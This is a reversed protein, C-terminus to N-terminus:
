ETHHRKHHRKQAPKIMHHTEHKAVHHKLAPKAVHHHRHHVPELQTSEVKAKAEDKIPEHHLALEANRAQQSDFKTPKLKPTVVVPGAEKKQHLTEHQHIKHHPVAEDKKFSTENAHRKKHMVKVPEVKLQAKVAHRHGHNRTEGKESTEVGKKELVHHKKHKSSEKHPAAIKEPSSEVKEAPHNLLYRERVSMAHSQSMATLTVLSMLIQLIWGLQKFQRM